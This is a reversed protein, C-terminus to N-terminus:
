SMQQKKDEELSKLYGENMVYDQNIKILQPEKSLLNIIDNMLIPRKKLKSIIIRVLKLDSERDVTWRLHSLNESHKISFIKFKDSNNYVYPTVHERESPKKANKWAKELSKFSFIEIETGQPFTRPLGNSIFDYSSSQYKEIADDVLTPDILPNDATIRIITSVSFKKACQYYRDLVDDSNGRFVSIGLKETFNAIKDDEVLDSTAIIIKDLLKCFQLQKIVYFLIPNSEDVKSLVKGPMRSSGMRAQVIAANLIKL